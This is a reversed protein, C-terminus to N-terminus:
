LSNGHEGESSRGLGPISGAVGARAPSNKVVSGGLFDLDNINTEWTTNQVQRTCM